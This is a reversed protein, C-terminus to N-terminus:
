FKVLPSVEFSVGLLQGVPEEVQLLVAHYTAYGIDCLLNFHGHRKKSSLSQRPSTSNSTLALRHQAYTVPLVTGSVDDCLELVDVM